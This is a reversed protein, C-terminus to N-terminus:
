EVKKVLSGGMANTVRKKPKNERPKSNLMKKRILKGAKRLLVLRKAVYNCFSFGSNTPKDLGQLFQRRHEISLSSGNADIDVLIDLRRFVERSFEILERPNDNIGRVTLLSDRYCDIVSQDFSYRILDVYPIGCDARYRVYESDQIKTRQSHQYARNVKSSSNM